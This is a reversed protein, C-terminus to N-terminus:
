HALERSESPQPAVTLWLSQVGSLYNSSGRRPLSPETRCTIPAGATCGAPSDASTTESTGRMCQRTQIRVDDYCSGPLLLTDDPACFAPAINPGVKGCLQAM